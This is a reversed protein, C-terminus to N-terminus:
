RHHSSTATEFALREVRQAITQYARAFSRDNGGVPDSISWHRRPVALPLATENARDCVTILLDPVVDIDAIHRPREGSLDLGHAAAVAVAQPHVQRAPRTGGSVASRGTRERWVAAALQSRAANHTCVFAVCDVRLPVVTGVHPIATPQLTVYRRRKDGQSAHRSILGAGELVDLHFAVLNSRLGTLAQLQGPTRDGAWLADLMVLRMEDSLARYVAARRDVSPDQEAVM